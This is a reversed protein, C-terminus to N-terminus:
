KNVNDLCNTTSLYTLAKSIFSLAKQPETNSIQHCRSTFNCVAHWHIEKQEGERGLMHFGLLVGERKVCLINM